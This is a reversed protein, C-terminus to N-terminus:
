TRRPALVYVDQLHFLWAPVWGAVAFLDNWDSRVHEETLFALGYSEDAGELKKSWEDTPRHFVFREHPLRRLFQAAGAADLQFSHQHEPSRMAVALSFSGLTSLVLRGNPRLVRRLERIWSQAADRDLHSFVSLAYVLDVSADALPLPPSPLTREFRGALNAQCWEISSAKVDVGIWEADPLGNPFWRLVRGCGCGFDLVAAVGDLPRGAFLDFARLLVDLDEVSSLLHAHATTGGCGTARLEEPPIPPYFRGLEDAYELPGNVASWHVLGPDDAAGYARRLDPRQEFVRRLADPFAPDRPTLFRSIMRASWGGTCALIPTVQGM